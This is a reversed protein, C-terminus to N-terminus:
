HTWGQSRDSWSVLCMDHCLASAAQGPPTNSRFACDAKITRDPSKFPPQFSVCLVAARAKSGNACQVRRAGAATLGLMHSMVAQSGTGHSVRPTTSLHNPESDVMAFESRLTRAIKCILKPSFMCWQVFNHMWFLKISYLRATPMLRRRDHIAHMIFELEPCRRPQGIQQVRIRQGVQRERLGWLRAISLSSIHRWCCRSRERLVGAKQIQSGAHQLRCIEIVHACRVAQWVHYQHGIYPACGECSTVRAQRTNCHPVRHTALQLLARRAMAHQVATAAGPLV